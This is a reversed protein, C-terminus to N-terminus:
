RKVMYVKGNLKADMRERLPIPINPLQNFPATGNVLGKLSTQARARAWRKKLQRKQIV